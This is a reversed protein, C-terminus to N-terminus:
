DKFRRHQRLYETFNMSEGIGTGGLKRLVPGKGTPVPLDGGVDFEVSPAVLRPNLQFQRIRWHVITIHSALRLIEEAPRLRASERMAVADEVTPERDDCRWLTALGGKPALKASAFVASPQLKQRRLVDSTAM